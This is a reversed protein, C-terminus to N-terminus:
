GGTGTAHVVADRIDAALTRCAELSARINRGAQESAKLVAEATMHRGYQQECALLATAEREPVTGTSKLYARAKSVEFARKADYHEQVAHAHDTTNSNAEDVLDRIRQQIQIQAMPDLDSM